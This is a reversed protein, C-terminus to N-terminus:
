PALVSTARSRGGGNAGPLLAELVVLNLSRLLEVADRRSVEVKAQVQRSM